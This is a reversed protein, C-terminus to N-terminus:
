DSVMGEGNMLFPLEQNESMAEDAAHQLKLAFELGWVVDEMSPRETGEEHLCNNAIEGFKLLCGRAIESSLKPDIIEHLTGRRYCSKGWTVLSVQDDSLQPSIVPRACSVSTPCYSSKHIARKRWWLVILIIFSFLVIGGGVGEAIMAYPTEKKNGKVPSAPRTQPTTSSLGPNPSSLNGSMNLKFVELGNLFGDDYKESEENPRLALWLDQKSGQGDLDNAYVGYDKYVPYGSGQTWEFLDAENEATQNNIFIKFIMQGKTTYNSIINCFHLRLMYNFGSDVPLLWTLNYYKLLNGMSRQTQYVLEPATYNPTDTTYTIPTRTTPTLGLTQLLYNEDGDWSRYMGTDANSSIHEGGVNLRYISELATFNDIVSGSNQGVYKFKNAKFYLKEPMSVIEIGNIFAYSNPSPFFTVNLFETDKVYVIFEKVFSAESLFSATLFASFNTM